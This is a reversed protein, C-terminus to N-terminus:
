PRNGAEIFAGFHMVADFSHNQFLASLLLATVSMGSSSNASPPVADRSGKSLDDYAVVEHGAELLQAAVISGIFGAGGTVLIRM